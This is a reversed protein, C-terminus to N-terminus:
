RRCRQTATLASNAATAFPRAAVAPRARLWGIVDATVAEVSADSALCFSWRKPGYGLDWILDFLADSCGKRDSDCTALWETGTQPNPTNSPTYAAMASGATAAWIAAALWRKTM